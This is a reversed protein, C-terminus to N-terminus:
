CSAKSFARAGSRPVSMIDNEGIMIDPKADNRIKDNDATKTYRKGKGEDRTIRLERVM